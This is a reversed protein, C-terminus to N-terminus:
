PKGGAKASIVLKRDPDLRYNLDNSKLIKFVTSLNEDRNLSGFLEIPPITGEYTVDLNYWRGLQRMAEQLTKGTFYFYGKKWAIISELDAKVVQINGNKLIAQQGPELVMGDDPLGSTSFGTAVKGISVRVSGSVLSTKIEKEDKYSSLNFATGLVTVYQNQSKVIFPWVQKQTRSGSASVEFYAEGELEVERSDGTFHNPYKLSTAANLWVKTGDSLIIQYQGGKPTSLSLMKNDVISKGQASTKEKTMINTGDNYVIQEDNIQIGAKASDLNITTGDALTLTAQNYGPQLATAAVSKAETKRGGTIPYFYLGIALAVLLVAAAYWRYRVVLKRRLPVDLGKKLSISASIASFNSAAARKLLEESPVGDERGLYQLLHLELQQREAPSCTGDQYKRILEKVEELEMEHLTM